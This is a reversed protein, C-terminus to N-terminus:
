PNDDDDDSDGSQEDAYARCGETFSPSNHPDIPCDDPDTIDHEEAWNYGAEHGSCDQTCTYSHFTEGSAADHQSDDHSSTDDNSAADQSDTSDDASTDQQAPAPTEMSPHSANHVSQNHFVFAALAILVIWFVFQGLNPSKGPSSSM